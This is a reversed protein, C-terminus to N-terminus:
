TISYNVKLMKKEKTKSEIIKYIPHTKNIWGVYLFSNDYTKDPMQLGSLYYITSDDEIYFNITKFCKLAKTNKTKISLRFDYAEESAYFLIMQNENNNNFIEYSMAEFNNLTDFSEHLKIYCSYQMKPRKKFTKFKTGM